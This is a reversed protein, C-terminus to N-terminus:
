RTVKEINRDVNFSFSFATRGPLPNLRSQGPKVQGDTSVNTLAQQLLSMEKPSNVYGQLVVQQDQVSLQQIDLTISSKPPVADNIKKAIDLASNMNAVSALTKLDAARKKNDRIYKRIGNESAARGKLGAVTKAQTKLVEQTRDALSLSFSERLSTYVFLVVLAATAVKITPGWKEWFMKFQHNEKAFEGRLFNVPPNRPKKFGELALGLAVGMKAGNAVSREFAINPTQDLASVRNVPVELVQTLFPGLNQIQSVGGTMSISNIQANFESKLELIALQLDRAMERVCKAITDSFTVQDFTAGQKNTLIFAKTQLEKIAEIFPIEYKQAIAEAINKGGWLISGVQILSSGEFACVLTRSHGIHLTLTVQRVPKAEDDLGIAPAPVSPPAENWKEFVNAYATGEASILFPDMNSDQARQILNQVHIKPAACALIEAGSGVTRIIKADFIANDASFPLDEELEFALSKAIKLRDNFPFFKNRVAVRNQPLAFVFRTQAPDYLSAFDRLYELIELEQDHGPAIGLPHEMCQTVQFGKSTSQVEVIKISSSGIDIGLSKM